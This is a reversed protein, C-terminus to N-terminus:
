EDGIYKSWNKRAWEMPDIGNIDWWTREDGFKHMQMHHEHCLPVAWNDGSKM